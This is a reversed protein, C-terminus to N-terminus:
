SYTHLHNVGARRSPSDPPHQNGRTEGTALNMAERRSAGPTRNGSPRRLAGTIRRATPTQAKGGKSLFLRLIAAAWKKPLSPTM